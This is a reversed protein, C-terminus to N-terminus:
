TVVHKEDVVPETASATEVQKAALQLLAPETGDDNKGSLVRPLDVDLRHLVARGAVEDLALQARAM